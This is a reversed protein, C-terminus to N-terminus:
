YTVHKILLSISVVVKRDSQSSSPGPQERTLEEFSSYKQILGRMAKLEQENEDVARGDGCVRLHYLKKALNRANVCDYLIISACTNGGLDINKVILGRMQIAKLSDVGLTFFDVEPDTININLEAFKKLIWNELEPVTLSILPGGYSSELKTYIDEIEEAYDRYIQDTLLQVGKHYSDKM